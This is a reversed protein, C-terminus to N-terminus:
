AWRRERRPGGGPEGKTARTEVWVPAFPTPFARAGSRAPAQHWRPRAGQRQPGSGRAGLRRHGGTPSATASGAKSRRPPTWAAFGRESGGVGTTKVSQSDVVGASPDRPDRRGLLHWRLRGRLEANMLREWTGDIRGMSAGDGSGTTYVSKWPPFDKPLLRWPCGSKLVYFVADLIARLGHLRPRGHGTPEPLHPRICLWQDDSLDTPYRTSEM